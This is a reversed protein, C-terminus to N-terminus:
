EIVLIGDEFKHLIGSIFDGEDLSCFYGQPDPIVIPTDLVEGAVLPCAYSPNLQELDKAQIRIECEYASKTISSVKAIFQASQVCALAPASLTLFISSIAILKMIM